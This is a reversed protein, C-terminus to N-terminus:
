EKKDETEKVLDAETSEEEEEKEADEIDHTRAAAVQLVVQELSNLYKVGEMAPFDSVYLADGIQLHEINLTIKEPLDSPLCEVEAEHLFHELVGGLRVGEANGVLAVPSLTKLLKGKEVEYFDIHRLTNRIIDNDYQKIIM